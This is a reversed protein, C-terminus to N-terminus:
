EVRKADFVLRRDCEDDKAALSELVDICEEETNAIIGQRDIYRMEFSFQDREARTFTYDGHSLSCSGGVVAPMYFWDDFSAEIRNERLVPAIGTFWGAGECVNADACRRIEVLHATDGEAAIFQIFPPEDLEADLLDCSTTSEQISTVRYIGEWSQLLAGEESQCGMLILVAITRTM